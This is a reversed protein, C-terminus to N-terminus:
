ELHRGYSVYLRHPCVAPRQSRLAGSVGGASRQSGLSEREPSGRGMLVAGFANGERGGLAPMAAM